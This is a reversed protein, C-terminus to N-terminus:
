GFMDEFMKNMDAVAKKLVQEKVSKMVEERPVYDRTNAELTIECEDSQIFFVRQDYRKVHIKIRFLQISPKTIDPIRIIGVDLVSFEETENNAFFHFFGDVAAGSSAFINGIKNMTEEGIIELLEPDQISEKIWRVVGDKIPEDPSGDFCFWNTEDRTKSQVVSLNTIGTKREVMVNQEMLETLKEWTLKDQGEDQVFKDIQKFTAFLILKLQDDMMVISDKTLKGWSPAVRFHCRTMKNNESVEDIITQQTEDIQDELHVNLQDAVITTLCSTATSQIGLLSMNTYVLLVNYILYSAIQLKACRNSM